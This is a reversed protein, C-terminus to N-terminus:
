TEPREDRPKVTLLMFGRNNSPTSGAAGARSM